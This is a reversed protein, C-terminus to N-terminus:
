GPKRATILKALDSLATDQRRVDRFGAGELLAQHHPFSRTQGSRMALLYFGFYADAAREGDDAIPEAILLTGGPKLAEFCAKLLVKLRRDPHDYAVRVLTVLDQDPPLADETFSGGIPQIRGGFGAADLETGAAAAVAPLDFLTLQSDPAVGAVHRLFTGTGGGVDLIRAYKTFPFSATVADAIMIQSQAMLASYPLVGTETQTDKADPALYSWFAGVKTVKDPDKLLDVPDTLDVYLDQHHRIMAIVGPNDVLAAGKMALAIAGGDTKRTLSLAHTARLLRETAAQDLGSTQSLDNVSKPGTKLRDLLGTEVFAFLAQSYVFGACLDFLEQTHRRSTRRTLPNLQLARRVKPSMILRPAWGVIRERWSTREPLQPAPAQQPQANLTTSGM